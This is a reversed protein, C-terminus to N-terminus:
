TWIAVLAMVGFGGTLCAFRLLRRDNATFVDSIIEMAAVYLFTGGALADFLGEFIDANAGTLRARLFMGGLMGLPTAWAFIAIMRYHLRRDIHGEILSTSLALAAFGKHALIAIVLALSTALHGEVGLAVGAFFSHIALVLALLYPYASQPTALARTLM